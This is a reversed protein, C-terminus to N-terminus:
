PLLSKEDKWKAWSRPEDCWRREGCAIDIYGVGGAMGRSGDGMELLRGCSM